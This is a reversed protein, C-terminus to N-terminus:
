SDTDVLVVPGHILLVHFVVAGCECTVFVGVDVLAFGAWLRFLSWQIDSELCAWFLSASGGHATDLKCKM